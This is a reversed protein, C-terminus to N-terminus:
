NGYFYTLALNQLAGGTGSFFDTSNFYATYGTATSATDISSTINQVPTTTGSVFLMGLEKGRMYPVKNTTTTDSAFSQPIAFLTSTPNHLFASQSTTDKEL